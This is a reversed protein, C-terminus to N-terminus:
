PRLDLDVEFDFAPWLAQAAPPHGAVSRRFTAPEDGPRCRRQGTRSEFDFALDFGFILPWPHGARVVAPKVHNRGMASPRPDANLAKLNSKGHQRRRRAQSQERRAAAPAPRPIATTRAAAPATTSSQEPAPQRKANLRDTQQPTRLTPPSPAAHHWTM